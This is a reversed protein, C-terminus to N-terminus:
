VRLRHRARRAERGRVCISHLYLVQGAGTPGVILTSSGRPIGGGFLNDLAEIGSTVPADAIATEHEAAVLRPYVTLGSALINYDHYGERFTSGRMKVVEIRRRTIGFSRPLKELRIVGHAISQLQKDHFGATRDDLLLATTKRGAFFQKLALVQRRYRINDGALLQLESLSDLVLCSPQAKEIEETLRSITSALEIETPHFVTYQQEPALSAEDPVFEVIPMHSLDWGFSEASAVLEQKPESLTVYLVKDGKAVAALLFQMAVTTKGTGPDGELLYMHGAPLGGQLIDDLGTVGSSVRKLKGNM